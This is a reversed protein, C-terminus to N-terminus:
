TIEFIKYLVGSATRKGLGVAVLNNLWAYRMDATQFLPLTRFYYRAPDLRGVSALDRYEEILEAPIVVRGNYTVHILAGNETQWLSRVDLHSTSRGAADQGQEAWDGGSPLIKGTLRQGEFCGGSINSVRLWRWPTQGVILPADRALEINVHCLLRGTLELSALEDITQTMVM